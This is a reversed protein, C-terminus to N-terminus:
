VWTFRLSVSAKMGNPIYNKQREPIMKEPVMTGYVVNPYANSIVYKTAVDGATTRVGSIKGEEDFLIETAKTHFWIDGGKERIREIVANSLQHGTLKPIYAGRRIYKYVCLCYHMFTLTECDCGLYPWYTDMIDVADDPIGIARCVQNFPYATTRLFNPYKEQMYKSDPHGSSKNIYATAEMAEECVEFFTEMPKRSGPVWREMEDIFQKVGHPMVVDFERGSRATGITRYAVPVSLWPINIGYEGEILNRADGKDEEPGWDCFEHLSADFEFRGRVFSSASGGPMNHKEVLLVKKGAVALRCAASMGGNGAGIVVCDYSKM